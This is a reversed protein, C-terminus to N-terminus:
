LLTYNTYDNRHWGQSMAWEVNEARTMGNEDTEDDDLEEWDGHYIGGEYENKGESIVVKPDLHVNELFATFGEVNGVDEILMDGDAALLVPRHMKLVKAISKEAQKETVAKQEILDTYGQSGIIAFRWGDGFDYNYFLYDTFPSCEINKGERIATQIQERTVVQPYKLGVVPLLNNGKEDYPLRDASVALVDGIKLREIVRDTCRRIALAGDEVSLDGLRVKRLTCADPDDAACVVPTGLSWPTRQVLKVYDGPNKVVSEIDDAEVFTRNEEDDKESPKVRELIYYLDDPTVGTEEEDDEEPPYYDELYDGEYKYPGTYQERMWKQFSGGTFMPIDMCFFDEEEMDQHFIVGRLNLLNETSDGAVKVVSEGYTQFEHQHSDQFGFARQIVYHLSLLPMDRPVIIDRTITEGRTVNGYKKLIETCEAGVGPLSVHLRMLGEPLIYEKAVTEKKPRAM